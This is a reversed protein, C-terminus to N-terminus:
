KECGPCTLRNAPRAKVLLRASKLAAVTDAPWERLEESGILVAAGRSAKLRHLLEALIPQPTM